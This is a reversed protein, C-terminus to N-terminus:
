DDLGYMSVCRYFKTKVSENFVNLPIFKLQGDYWLVQVVSDNFGLVRFTDREIADKGKEAITYEIEM